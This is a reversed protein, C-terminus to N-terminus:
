ELVWLQLTRSVSLLLQNEEPPFAVAQVPGTVVERAFPTRIQGLPTEESISWARLVAYEPDKRSVAVVRSGDASIAVRHYFFDEAPDDLRQPSRGRWWVQVGVDPGYGGIVVKGESSLDLSCVPGSGILPVPVEAPATRPM